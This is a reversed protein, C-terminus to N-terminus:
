ETDWEAMQATIREVVIKTDANSLGYRAHLLRRAEYDRPTDWALLKIIYDSDERAVSCWSCRGGDYIHLTEICEPLRFANTRPQPIYAGRQEITTTM